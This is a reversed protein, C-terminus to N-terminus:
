SRRKANLDSSREKGISRGALVDKIADWGERGAEVKIRGGSLDKERARAEGCIKKEERRLFVKGALLSPSAVTEWGPDQGGGQRRLCAARERNYFGGGKGGVLV